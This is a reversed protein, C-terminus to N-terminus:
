LNTLLIQLENRLQLLRNKLTKNKLIRIIGLTKLLLPHYYLSFWASLALALCIGIPYFINPSFAYSIFFWLLYNVLFLIMSTAIIVSSYFELKNKVIKKTIVGTLKFPLYNGLMGIAYIPLTTILVLLRLVLYFPTVTKNQKTNILWDKLKHKKLSNFYVESKTKFEDLVKKNTIEATNVKETIQKTVLFDHELNKYNLNQERLMDKKNLTEINFVVSDYEKTNIHTILAKM